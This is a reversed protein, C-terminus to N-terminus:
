FVSDLVLLLISLMGFTEEENSHDRLANEALSVVSIEHFYDVFKTPIDKDKCMKGEDEDTLVHGTLHEQIDEPVTSFQSDGQLSSLEMEAEYSSCGAKSQLVLESHMTESEVQNIATFQHVNSKIINPVANEIANECLSPAANNSQISEFSDNINTSAPENTKDVDGIFSKLTENSRRCQQKFTFARSVQLVCPVCMLDPLGDGPQM